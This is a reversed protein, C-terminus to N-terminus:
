LQFRVNSTLGLTQSTVGYNLGFDLKFLPMNLGAGGFLRLAGANVESEIDIGYSDIDIGYLSAMETVQADDLGSINDSNIGGGATTVGYSYGLGASLNLLLLKKSAQVKFDFINASWDFFLETDDLTLNGLDTAVTQSSGAPVLVEGRLYTYGIGVSLEPMILKGKLIAYRVDGGVMMYNLSYDSSDLLSSTDLAGIKFGADMPLIPIGIRADVTYMPMPLGISPLNDLGDADILDAIETFSDAPIFVAGATLGIGFRPFMGMYADNWNLGMGAMMPLADATDDAFNDFSDTLDVLDYAAVSFTMTLLLVIIGIKKM